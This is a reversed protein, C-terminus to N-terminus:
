ELIRLFQEDLGLIPDLGLELPALALGLLVPFAFDLLGVLRQGVPNAFGLGSLLALPLLGVDLIGGPHGLQGEFAVGVQLTGVLM